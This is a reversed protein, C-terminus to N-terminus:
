KEARESETQSPIPKNEENTGQEINATESSSAPYKHGSAQTSSPKIKMYGFIAKFGTKLLIGLIGGISTSFGLKVDAKIEESLYDPAIEIEARRTGHLHSHKDIFNLAPGLANSIAYYNCAIKAADAGGVKIKIRAVHFHFKLFLNPFFFKLISILLSILDPIPPMSARKAAKKAKKEAKTLKAEEEKKKKKEADKKAKKLAKAEAKKADKIAKKRDRKAIKKLTYNSIKYKKPKKPLINIRIGLVSVWLRMEEAMDITVRIRVTFILVFLAVIGLIIYLAIVIIVGKQIIEFKSKDPVRPPHAHPVKGPFFTGWV